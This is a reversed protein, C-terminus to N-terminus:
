RAVRCTVIRNRKDFRKDATVNYCSTQETHINHPPNRRKATRTGCYQIPKYTRIAM